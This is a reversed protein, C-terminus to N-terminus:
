PPWLDLQAVSELRLLRSLNRDARGEESLDLEEQGLTRQQQQQQERRGAADCGGNSDQQLEPEPQELAHQNGDM